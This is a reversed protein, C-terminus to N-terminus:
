EVCLGYQDELEKLKDAEQVMQNLFGELDVESDIPKFRIVDELYKKNMSAVRVSKYYPWSQIAVFVWGRRFKDISQVVDIMELLKDAENSTFDKSVDTHYPLNFKGNDTSLHSGVVTLLQSGALILDYNRNVLAAGALCVSCLKPGRELDGTKPENEVLDNQETVPGTVPGAVKVWYNLDLDIGKNRLERADSVAQKIAESLRKSLVPKHASNSTIADYVEPVFIKM